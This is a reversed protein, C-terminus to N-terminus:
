RVAAPHTSAGPAHRSRLEGTRKGRSTPVMIPDSADVRVPARVSRVLQSDVRQLGHLTTTDPCRVQDLVFWEPHQCLHVTLGPTRVLYDAGVCRAQEIRVFVRAAGTSQLRTCPASAPREFFLQVGRQELYERPANRTDITTLGSHYRLTGAFTTGIVTDPPLVRKLTVGLETGLAYDRRMEEISQRSWLGVGLAAAAAAVAFLARRRRRPGPRPSAPATASM